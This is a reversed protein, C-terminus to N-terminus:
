VEFYAPLFKEGQLYLNTGQEDFARTLKSSLMLRIILSLPATLIFMSALLYFVKVLSETNVDEM